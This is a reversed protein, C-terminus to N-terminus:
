RQMTHLAYKTPGPLPGGDPLPVGWRHAMGLGQRLGSEATVPRLLQTQAYTPLHPSHFSCHSTRVHNPLVVAHRMAMMTCNLVHVMDHIYLVLYVTDHQLYLLFTYFWVGLFFIPHPYRSHFKTCRRDLDLIIAFTQPKNPTAHCSYVDSYCV